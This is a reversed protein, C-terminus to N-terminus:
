RHAPPPLKRIAAFYRDYTARTDLAEFLAKSEELLARSDELAKQLDQRPTLSIRGHGPYFEEINLDSLRQLSSIYDSVNGSGLIGSLAGGALVTDGTFLVRHDSEYLCICGSCHGPTHIVRIKYNGMDLISNEHLWLDARFSRADRDLYKGMMVFEDQLEIKNAALAHAAVVTREFFYPVAGIHDFHEHTLIILHIDEPVLGVVKLCAELNAYNSATGTDIMVNKATGKILYVHSGPRESRIQYINPKLEVIRPKQKSTGM